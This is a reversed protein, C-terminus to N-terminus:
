DPYAARARRAKLRAIRHVLAEVDAEAWDRCAPRLRERPEGLLLAPRPDVPGANPVEGTPLGGTHGAREGRGAPLETSARCM